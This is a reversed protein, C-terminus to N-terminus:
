ARERGIWRKRGSVVQWGCKEKRYSGHEKVYRRLLFADVKAVALMQMGDQFYYNYVAM